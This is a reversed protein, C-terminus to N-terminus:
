RVPRSCYAIDPRREKREGDSSLDRARDHNIADAPIALVAASTLAAFVPVLLFVARQSFAYGVAGALLAIAINGGHDFASNRALRRALRERTM